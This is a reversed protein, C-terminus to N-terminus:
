SATKNPPWGFFYGTTGISLLRHQRWSYNQSKDGRGHESYFSIGYHSQTGGDSPPLWGTVDCLPIEWGLKGSSSVGLLSKQHTFPCQGISPYDPNPSSTLLLLFFLLTPLFFLSTSNINYSTLSPSCFWCSVWSYPSPFAVPYHAVLILPPQCFPLAPPLSHHYTESPAYQAPHRDILMQTLPGEWSSLGPQWPLGPLWQPDLNGSVIHLTLNM